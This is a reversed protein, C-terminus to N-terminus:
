RRAYGLVFNTVFFSKKGKIDNSQLSFAGSSIVVNQTFIGLFRYLSPNELHLESRKLPRM